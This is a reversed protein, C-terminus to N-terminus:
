FQTFLKLDLTYFEWKDKKFNPITKKGSQIDKILTDINAMSVEDFSTKKKKRCYSFFLFAALIVAIVPMKFNETFNWSPSPTHVVFMTIETSNSNLPDTHEFYSLFGYNSSHKHTQYGFYGEEDVYELRYNSNTSSGALYFGM